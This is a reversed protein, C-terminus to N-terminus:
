LPITTKLSLTNDTYDLGAVNSERRSYKYDLHLKMHRSVNYDFGIGYGFLQDTRKVQDPTTVFLQNGVLVRTGTFVRDEYDQNGAYIAMRGRLKQTVLHKLSGYFMKEDYTTATSFTGEQPRRLFGFELATPLRGKDKEKPCISEFWYFPKQVAINAVIRTVDNRDSAHLNRHHLGVSANGRWGWYLDGEVGVPFEYYTTDRSSLNYFDVDGLKLGTYLRQKEGTKQYIRWDYINENYSYRSAVTEQFNHDYNQYGFELTQGSELNVGMKTIVRNDLININESTPSGPMAGTQTLRNSVNFYTTDTPKLNLYTLFDQDQTNAQEFRNVYKFDAEYSIGSRGYDGVHVMDIGPTVSWVMADHEGAGPSKDAKFVNSTLDFGTKVYPRLTLGYNKTLDARQEQLTVTDIFDDIGEIAFAPSAALLPLILFMSITNRLNYKKM